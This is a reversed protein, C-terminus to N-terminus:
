VFFRQGQLVFDAVTQTVQCAAHCKAQHAGVKGPVAGIDQLDVRHDQCGQQCDPVDPIRYVVGHHASQHVLHKGLLMMGLAFETGPQEPSGGHQNHGKNSQPRNGGHQLASGHHRRQEDALNQIFGAVGHEVDGHARQQRGHGVSVFLPSRQRGSTSEAGDDAVNQRGHNEGNDQGGETIGIGGAVADASRHAGQDATDEAQTVVEQRFLPIHHFVLATIRVIDLEGVNQIHEPLVPSEQCQAQVANKDAGALIHGGGQTGIHISINQAVDAQSGGGGHDGHGQANHGQSHRGFDSLLDAQLVHDALAQNDGSHQVHAQKSSMHESCDVGIYM